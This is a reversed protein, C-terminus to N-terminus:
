STRTANKTPPSTGADPHPSRTSRQSSCRATCRPSGGGFRWTGDKDDVLWAETRAWARRERLRLAEDEDVKAEPEPKFADSIRLARQRLDKIPFRKADAILSTECADRQEPTVGEPLGAMTGAIVAAQTEALEGSALADETKPASSLHNAVRVSRDAEWKDRGFGRALVEGTRDKDGLGADLARVAALEQAAVRAKIRRLREVAHRRMAPDLEAYADTPMSDLVEDLADLCGVLPPPSPVLEAVM